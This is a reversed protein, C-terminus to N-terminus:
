PRIGNTWLPKPKLLIVPKPKSTCINHVTQKPTITKTVLTVINGNL